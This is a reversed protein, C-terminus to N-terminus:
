WKLLVLKNLSESLEVSLCKNNSFNIFLECSESHFPKTLKTTINFKFNDGIDNQYYINESDLNWVYSSSPLSLILKPDGSKNYEWIGPANRKSFYLKDGNFRAIYGGEADLKKLNSNILSFSYLYYGQKNFKSFILDSNYFQPNIGDIDIATDSLLNNPFFDYVKIRNNIELAVKSYRSSASINTIKYNKSFSSIKESTNNNLNYLWVQDIGTKNSIYLILDNSYFDAFRNKFSLNSTLPMSTSSELDTYVINQAVFQGSTLLIGDTASSINNIPAIFPFNTRNIETGNDFKVISVGGKDNKFSLFSGDWGVSINTITLVESWVVKWNDNPNVMRIKSRVGDKSSLLVVLNSKPSTSINYIGLGGENDINVPEIVGSSINGIYLSSAKSGLTAESFLIESTTYKALSSSYSDPNCPFINNLLYNGQLFDIKAVKISCNKEDYVRFMLKEEDLWAPKRVNLNDEIFIDKGTSRNLIAIKWFREDYSKTSYAIISNKSQSAIELKIDTNSLLEINKVNYINKTEHSNYKFVIFVIFTIFTIFFSIKYKFDMYLTSLLQTKKDFFVNSDTKVEVKAVFTYGKKPTNIIFRGNLGAKKLKSRLLSIVRTLSNNTTESSRWNSLFEEHSILSNSNEVLISLVLSELYDLKIEHKEATISKSILMSTSTCFIVRGNLLFKDL